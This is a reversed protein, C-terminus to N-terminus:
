PLDSRMLSTVIAESHNAIVSIHGEGPYFNARCRALKEAIERTKTVPVEKDLEGHWLYLNSFTIAELSFGWARGLLAGDYAAGRTGQRLSEVLSAAMLVKIEDIQLVKQDPEAWNGAFRVLTKQAQEEDRFFRSTAPLLLYPVWQALFSLLRGTNGVGAVTGCATLRQPIKYACALAYPGGGSFGVVAFRDINMSDALATVDDPWDLLRRGAKFTSLGMGPRDVGILRIRAQTAQEALFRAEFRSGPHGHFYFLPKGERSGYEAYGLKRGDSLAITQNTTSVSDAKLM